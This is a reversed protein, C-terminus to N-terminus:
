NRAMGDALTRADYDLLALYSAAPGKPPSLADSYLPPGVVAGTDRALQRILTPNVVTEFFLAKVGEARIQRELRAIDGASAEGAETSVGVPALVTVGYARAWYGFADHSTIIRRKEPPITAILARIKQDEVELTAAYAARRAEYDGAHAPDVAALGAAIAGAYAIGNAPDQWAHPDPVDRGGEALMMPAIGASATVVLGRPAAAAALRPYWPELGLGNIVVLKAAALSRVDGPKPEYVHADGDPPVLSRVVVAEGGVARTIDALITTTAIVPLPDARALDLTLLLTLTLLLRM